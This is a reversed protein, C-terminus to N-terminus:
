RETRNRLYGLAMLAAGGLVGTLHYPLFQSVDVPQQAIVKLYFYPVWVLIGLFSMAHGARALLNKKPPDVGMEKRAVSRLRSGGVVGVLHFLLFWLLSPTEGAMRLLMFPAWTLVGLWVLATGLRYRSLATSATKEKVVM